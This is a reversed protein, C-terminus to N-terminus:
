MNRLAACAHAQVEADAECAGMAGSIAVVGGGAIVMGTTKYSTCINRLACCGERLVDADAPHAAMSQLVAGIAGSQVVALVSNADGAALNRLAICGQVQVAASRIHAAMASLIHDLGEVAIVASKCGEDGAALNRLAACAEVVVDHEAAHSALATVIRAPAGASLLARMCSASSAARSNSVYRSTSPRSLQEDAGPAESGAASAVARAPPGKQSADDVTHTEDEGEGGGINALCSCGVEQLLASERHAKLAATIPEVGVKLVLAEKCESGGSALNALTSCAQILVPANDPSAAM